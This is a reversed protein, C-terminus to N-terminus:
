PRVTWIRLGQDGELRALRERIEAQGEVVQDVKEVLLEVVASLSIADPRGVSRRVSRSSLYALVSALTPPGAAIIAVIVVDSM